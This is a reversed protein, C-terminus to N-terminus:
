IKKSVRGDEVNGSLSEGTVSLQRVGYRDKWRALWGISVTFNPDRGLKNNLSLPKEKLIPGSIPVGHEREQEFWM